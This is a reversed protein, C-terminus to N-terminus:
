STSQGTWAVVFAIADARSHTISVDMGEVGLYDAIEAARGHLHVRPKRRADPLVEIDRWRLHRIGVGLAKSTAEKAAFRGALREARTGCYAREAETYVRRLFRDGWRNVVAQIREVEILDVGTM